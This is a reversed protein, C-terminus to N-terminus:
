PNHLFFIICPIKAHTNVMNNTWSGHYRFSSTIAQGPGSMVGNRWTGMYKAPFEKYKYYGVGEKVDQRWQGEYVDGNAYM